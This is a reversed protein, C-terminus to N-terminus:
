GVARKFSVVEALRSKVAMEEFPIEPLREPKKKIGMEATISYGLGTRAAKAAIEAEIQAIDAASAKHTTVQGHQSAFYEEQDNIFETIPKIPVRGYEM